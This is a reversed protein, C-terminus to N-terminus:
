PAPPAEPAMTHDGGVSEEDIQKGDVWMDPLATASPGSRIHILPVNLAEALEEAASWAKARRRSRVVILVGGKSPTVSTRFWPQGDFQAAAFLVGRLEGFAFQRQRRGLFFWFAWRHVIVRQDTQVVIRRLPFLIGLVVIFPALMALTPLVVPGWEWFDWTMVVVTLGPVPGLCAVVLGIYFRALSVPPTYELFTPSGKQTMAAGQSM